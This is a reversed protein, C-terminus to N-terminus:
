VAVSIGEDEDEDHSALVEAGLELWAKQDDDLLLDQFTEAQQSEGVVALIRRVGADARTSHNVILQDRTVNESRTWVQEDHVFKVIGKNKLASLVRRVVSEAGKRALYGGPYVIRGSSLGIDALEAVTVFTQVALATLVFANVRARAGKKDFQFHDILNTTM